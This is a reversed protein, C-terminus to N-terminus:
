LSKRVRNIKTFLESLSKNAKVKKVIDAKRLGRETAESINYADENGIWLLKTYTQVMYMAKGDGIAFSIIEGADPCKSNEICWKKLKLEFDEVEQNYTDKNEMSFTPTVLHEPPLYIKAM